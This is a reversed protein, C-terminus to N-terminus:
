SSLLRFSETIMDSDHDWVTATSHFSDVVLVPIFFHL